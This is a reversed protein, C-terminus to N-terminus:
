VHLRRGKEVDVWYNVEGRRLRIWDDEWDPSHYSIVLKELLYRDEPPTHDCITKARNDHEDVNYGSIVLLQLVDKLARLVDLLVNTYAVFFDEAYDQTMLHTVRPFPELHLSKLVIDHDDGNGGSGIDIHTVSFLTVGHSLADQALRAFVATLGFSLHTLHIALQCLEIFFDEIPPTSGWWGFLKFHPSQCANKLVSHLPTEVTDSNQQGHVLLSRLRRLKPYTTAQLSQCPTCSEDHIEIDQYYFPVIWEYVQHSVLMLPAINRREIHVSQELIDRALDLPLALEDHEHSVHDM